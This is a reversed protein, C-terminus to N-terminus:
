NIENLIGEFRKTTLSGEERPLSINAAKRGGVDERRGRGKAMAEGQKTNCDILKNELGQAALSGLSVVNTAAQRQHGLKGGCSPPRDYQNSGQRTHGGEKERTM